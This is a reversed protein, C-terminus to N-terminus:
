LGKIKASKKKLLCQDRSIKKKLLHSIKIQHEEQVMEVELRQHNMVKINIILQHDMKRTASKKKERGMEKETPPEQIQIEVPPSSSMPPVVIEIATVVETAATSDAPVASSPTSIKAKKSPEDPMTDKRKHARLEKFLQQLEKADMKNSRSSHSKCRVKRTASKKKERGMEKETPPEQIQIEVPPSSSMPPVVIEIATVVETAATSDAPVASSPTSIKAKKSPEDPMTDKRKHARLEKFLQQLEKADMKSPPYVMDVNRAYSFIPKKTTKLSISENSLMYVVDSMTPRVISGDAAVHERREMTGLGTFTSNILIRLLNLAQNGCHFSRSKKGGLIELLLVGFIFVDSKDSFLGEMADEPSMYCNHLYLLGQAIGEIIDFRKKWDQEAGKIPDLLRVLNRHQLNVTLSIENRFEVLGQGSSSLREAALEHGELMVEYVPGFGGDGLKDSASFNNTAALITSFSFLPCDPVKEGEGAIIGGTVKHSAAATNDTGLETRAESNRVSSLLEKREDTHTLIVVENSTVLNGLFYPVLHIRYPIGLCLVNGAAHNLESAALRVYLDQTADYHAQLGLLDGFRLLCSTTGNEHASAYATCSCNLMSKAKCDEIGM